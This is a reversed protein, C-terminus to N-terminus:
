EVVLPERGHIAHACFAVDRPTSEADLGFRAKFWQREADILSILAMPVDLSRALLTTIRDFRAEAPTDLVGYGHLAFLRAAEEDELRRAPRVDGERDSLPDAM